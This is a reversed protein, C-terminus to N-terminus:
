LIVRGRIEEMGVGNLKGSLITRVNRAGIMKNLFYSVIVEPGYSASKAATRTFGFVRRDLETELQWLNKKAQFEDIANTIPYWSLLEKFNAYFVPEDHKYLHELQEPSIRGGAILHSKKLKFADGKKERILRLLIKTNLFDIQMKLFDSIFSNKIQKAMRQKLKLLEQDCLEDIKSPTIKQIKKIKRVIKIISIKLLPNIDAQKIKVSHHFLATEIKGTALIIESAKAKQDKHELFQFKLDIFKNLEKQPVLGFNLASVAVHDSLGALGAPLGAMGGKAGLLKQKLAIKINLFDFDVFLFDFLPSNAIAGDLLKKLQATDDALVKNYDEPKKNLLNDAYDTDNLVAFADTATKAQIMRDTDNKDPLRKELVRILGTLYEYM